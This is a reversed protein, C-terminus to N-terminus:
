RGAGGPIRYFAKPLDRSDASGSTEPVGFVFGAPHRMSSIPLWSATFPSKFVCLFYHRLLNRWVIEDGVSSTKSDRWPIMSSMRPASISKRTKSLEHFRTLHPTSLVYRYFYETMAEARPRSRV